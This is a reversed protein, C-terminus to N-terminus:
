VCGILSFALVPLSSRTRWEQARLSHQLSADEAAESCDELGRHVYAPLSGYPVIVICERESREGNAALNSRGRPSVIERSIRAAGRCDLVRPCHALTARM